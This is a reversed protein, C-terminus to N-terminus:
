KRTERIPYDESDGRAEVMYANIKRVINPHKDAINETEGPDDKLNYLEFDKGRDFDESVTSTDYLCGGGKSLQTKANCREKKIVAIQGDVM